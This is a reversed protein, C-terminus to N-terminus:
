EDKDGNIFEQVIEDTKTEVVAIVRDHLGIAIADEPLHEGVAVDKTVCLTGGHKKAECAAELVALATQITEMSTKEISGSFVKRGDIPNDYYRLNNLDERVAKIKDKM